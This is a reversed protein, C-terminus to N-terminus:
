SLWKNLIADLDLATYPKTLIDNMGCQLCREREELTTAATLAIIPMNFGSKRLIETADFGDMEPMRCDMFILDYPKNEVAEIAQAGNECNDPTLNVKKLMQNIVLQNMRIDDVVLISHQRLIDPSVRLPRSEYMPVKLERSGIELPISVFFETGEGEVSSFDIDGQMLEVLNKCIALGLGTGEYQRSSSRDVQTFPDFLTAHSEFPIGIGTDTIRLLLRDNIWRALVKVEGTHTFKIANGVLNVLIQNIREVDGIWYAPFDGRSEIVFGIGGERAKNTFIGYLTNQLDQWRFQTMILQMMGANMKSFDLLDNIIVRLMDGSHQLNTLYSQQEADLLTDALLEASGLLGNLPTRLEHNIMAVFEKTAKESEEARKRSEVQRKMIMQRSLASCLLEGVLSLQKVIFEREINESHIEFVMHGASLREVMLPLCLYDQQWHPVEMYPQILSLEINGLQNEVLGDVQDPSLQLFVSTIVPTQILREIFTALLNSDLARSLFARGFYILTSDIHEEFEFKQLDQSTQKQLQKLALNLQQNAQYLEYSKQELLKEAEKRAAMERKLKREMPSESSM